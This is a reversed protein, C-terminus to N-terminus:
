LTPNGLEANLKVAEQVWSRIQAEPLEPKTIKLHKMREGEGELPIDSPTLNAGRWFGLTVHKKAARIFAMPGEPTEYVPQAWKISHKALPFEELIIAHLRQAVQKQWPDNVKESIYWEVSKGKDPSSKPAAM